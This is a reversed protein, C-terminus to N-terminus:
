VAIGSKGLNPLVVSEVAVMASCVASLVLLLSPDKKM